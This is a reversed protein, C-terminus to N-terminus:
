RCAMIHKCTIYFGSHLYQLPKGVLQAFFVLVGHGQKILADWNSPSGYTERSELHIVRIKEVLVRNAAERM